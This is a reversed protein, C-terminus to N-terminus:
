VNRAGFYRLWLRTQIQDNDRSDQDSSVGAWEVSNWGEIRALEKGETDLRILTPVIEIKAAWSRELGLDEIVELDPFFTGDQCLIEASDKELFTKLVPAM